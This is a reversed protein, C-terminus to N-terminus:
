RALAKGSDAGKVVPLADGRWRELGGNLNVAQTFGQSSLMRAASAGLSGTGCYVVVPKEKYKKLTEAATLIQASDFHRAGNIHGESFEEARRIDLVLAGGNMLRIVDQSTVAAFSNRRTVIEFALLAVAALVAGAVLWPQNTAYEILREM